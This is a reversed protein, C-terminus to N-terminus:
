KQLDTIKLSVPTDIETVYADIYEQGRARAVSIRHNGDRVFYVEDVKFLEVPPLTVDKYYAKDISVWRSKTHTQRPFFARDFDHHRGESGVINKVPVFQFGLYRQGNLPLTQRIDEFSILSNNKKVLWSLWDRWHAKNVARDFDRAALTNFIASTM